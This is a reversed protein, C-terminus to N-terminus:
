IRRFVHLQFRVNELSGPYRLKEDLKHQRMDEKVVKEWRVVAKEKDEEASKKSTVEKGAKGLLVRDLLWDMPYSQTEEAEGEHAMVITKEAAAGISDLILLVSEKALVADLKRLFATTKPISTNYLDNLTLFLTVFVAESGVMNQLQETGLGFVDAQQFSIALSQPSLLASNTARASASAYKSLPPPTTFGTELKNIVASWDASDVLRLDLMSTTTTSGHPPLSITTTDLESQPKGAAADSRLYRVLGVFAMVEAPGGGFCIVKANNGQSQTSSANLIRRTWDDDPRNECLWAMVNAYALCRSPSWRLAYGETREKGEFAREFDREGLAVNIEHLVLKLEELDAWAALFSDRFINLLLQQLEIPLKQDQILPVDKPTDLHQRTRKKTLGTGRWEGNPPPRIPAKSASSSLIPGHKRQSQAQRDYKGM